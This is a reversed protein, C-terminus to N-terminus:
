GANLWNYFELYDQSYWDESAGSYARHYNELEKTIPKLAFAIVGLIVALIIPFKMLYIGSIKSSIDVRKLVIYMTLGYLILTSIPIVIKLTSYSVGLEYLGFYILNVLFYLMSNIATLLLFGFVIWLVLLINERKM